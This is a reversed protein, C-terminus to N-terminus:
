NIRKLSMLYPKMQEKDKPYFYYGSLEKNGKKLELNATYYVSGGYLLVLYLKNGSVKGKIIYQGLNGTVTGGNQEFTGTGWGMFTDFANVANADQWEGSVRITPGTGGAKASLWEDVETVQLATSCASLSFIALIVLLLLSFKKMSYEGKSIAATM